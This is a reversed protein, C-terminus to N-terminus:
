TVLNRAQDLEPIFDALKTKRVQDLKDNYDFFDKLDKLNCEPNNSYHHLLSDISSRCSKGNSHYISTQQCKLMSDIVLDPYPHNYASQWKLYNIQMYIATFPFERDLFEFLLHMNTVNYIGPVTNISVSFGLSQMRHANEIVKDWKSGSRWYDNIKDYGDISFSFNTRPFQKVLDLFEDSFKVGNTCMTLDFDTKNKEICQRMFTRVEPMITPEGGQFYVQYRHDLDDINIMNLPYQNPTIRLQDPAVINFKKYEREISDSFAPQCGRCKINCHNGSHVEYFYPSKIHKLDDVSDIQLRTVWDLTEFQRYSEIGKQEYNYCVGCHDSILKGDLMSQRVTNYSTNKAWNNYQDITTVTSKARSCLKLDAGNNFFNIWPYICMSPNKKYMLDLWYLIRKTNANERFLVPTGQRELEIMIKCTAQLCKWHSWQDQTQDLMVVRDFRKSLEILGGWPIDVVTSHYFGPQQPIFDSETVLGHNVTHNQQAFNTVASDTSEDNNGLFLIKTETPIMQYNM